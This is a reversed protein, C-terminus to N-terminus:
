PDEGFFDRDLELRELQKVARDILAQLADPRGTDGALDDSRLIALAKHCDEIREQIPRDRRGAEALHELAEEYQQPSSGVAPSAPLGRSAPPGSTDPVTAATETPQAVAEDPTVRVVGAVGEGEPAPVDQMAGARALASRAGETSGQGGPTLAALFAGGPGLIVSIAAVTAALWLFIALFRITRRQRAVKRQLARLTGSSGQDSGGGAGEASAQVHETASAAPFVARLDHSATPPLELLEEDHAFRSIGGGPVPLLDEELRAEWPLPRLEPLGLFNRDLFAGFPVGCAHCRHDDPDVSADCNHCYGLLHAVGRIHKAPAWLQKTTPGRIISLKTVQGRDIMKILTEYSCGPRFPRGLDRVFWPGM